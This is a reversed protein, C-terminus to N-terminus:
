GELEEEGTQAGQDDQEEQPDQDRPDESGPVRFLRDGRAHKGQLFSVNRLHQTMFMILVTRSRPRSVPRRSHAPSAMPPDAPMSIAKRTATARLMPLQNKESLIARLAWRAWGM